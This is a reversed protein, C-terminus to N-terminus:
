VVFTIGIRRSRSKAWEEAARSAATTSTAAVNQARAGAAPAHVQGLEPATRCGNTKSEACGYAAPCCRPMSTPPAAPEVTTAGAAPVTDNAPVTGPEPRLTVIAVGCPFATVSVWRPESETAWPV